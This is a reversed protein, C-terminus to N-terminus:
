DQIKEIIKRIAEPTDADRLFTLNLVFADEQYMDRYEEIFDSISCPAEHGNEFDANSIAPFFSSWNTHDNTPPDFDVWPRQESLFEDLQFDIQPHQIITSTLQSNGNLKALVNYQISFGDAMNEYAGILYYGPKNMLADYFMAGPSRIGLRKPVNESLERRHDFYTAYFQAESETSILRTLNYSGDSIPELNYLTLNCTRAVASLAERNELETIPIGPLMELMLQETLKEDSSSFRYNWTDNRSEITVPFAPKSQDENM